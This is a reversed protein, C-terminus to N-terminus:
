PTPITTTTVSPRRCASGVKSLRQAQATGTSRRLGPSAWNCTWNSPEALAVFFDRTWGSEYILPSHESGPLQVAMAGGRTHLAVRSAGLIPWYPNMDLQMATVAGARMLATGLQNALVGQMTGVYILNGHGDVGIGTRPERPQGHLPSGWRRWYQPAASPSLSDHLVLAGLNQRYSIAHFNRPPFNPGGWLGMAWHGGNNIAITMDNRVLPVLTVGDVMSGGAKANPKFGGNFVAVVGPPGESRWDIAPGADIPAESSDTPDTSGVHWRLLTTRARLRVARFIEAGVRINRYDVMVGRASSSVVAWHAQPKENVAIARPTGTLASIDASHIVSTVVGLAVVLAFIGLSTVRRSPRRAM